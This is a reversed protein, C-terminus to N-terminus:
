NEAHPFEPLTVGKSESAHKHIVEFVESVQKTNLETTSDTSFMAKQVPMWVNEKFGEPTWKILATPKLFAKMDVGSDNLFRACMRWWKWMANNQQGTRQKGAVVVIELHGSQKWFERIDNLGSELGAEKDITLELKM